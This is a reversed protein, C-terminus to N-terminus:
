SRTWPSASTILFRRMTISQIFGLSIFSMWLHSIGYTIFPLPIGVTPLLGIVMGINIITSIVLPLVLGVALLQTHFDKLQTIVSFIRFFLILFLLLLTFAGLFGWEECLVSFIFDTSGIPLFQLKNQTGKLFGKGIFGGSGIAIESQEIQYREKLREGAGLFVSIRQKQYPKLFHWSLPAFIIGIVACVILFKKRVGALWLLCFGSLFIIIATGLDPQKLILFTSVLLLIIIPLFDRMNYSDKDALQYSFFPAFLIKSIESPQFKFFGLNIWRQGGMAIRGTFLTIFLLFITFFYLVYGFREFTKYDILCCLFYIVLGFAIGFVQKKCFISFPLDPRYTASFVTLIGIASLLLIILFNVWDFYIFYRRDIM